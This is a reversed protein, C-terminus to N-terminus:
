GSPAALDNEGSGAVHAFFNIKNGDRDQFWVSRIGWPQTTPTKIVSVNLEKLREYEQDVNEVEIELFCNGSGSNDMLGPVMEELGQASFISLNAGPLSFLVFLDDGEPSTELVKEYFDRLEPLNQTILCVSKLKKMM